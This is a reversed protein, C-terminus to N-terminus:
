KLVTEIATQMVQTADAKENVPVDPQLGIGTIKDALNPIWWHATTVHLSSGDSLSFVFQITDKGYTQTGVVPARKQAQLAGAVIEAASATGKNVLVVLPLDAFTGPKEVAYTREPKGRFQEKIVVGDKLFLRATGVGAEVLGGGNDRIDLIFREAQQAQLAKIANTIETPTTEAIIHVHIVGVSPADPALNYTTSPLAVEAREIVLDTPAYDPAHGITIKVKKGVPGRIAAQIVDDTTAPTIALAEVALLRDGDRVGATLAPSSPLPYLYINKQADRELRVGIGGYRGSLQQQQLEHQPPEVFITYPENVAALMGRIMGYELAKTAPLTIFANEELLRYAENFVPFTEGAGQDAYWWRYVFFGALFAAGVILFQMLGFALIRVFPQTKPAKSSILPNREM